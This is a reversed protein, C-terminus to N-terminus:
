IEKKYLSLLHFRQLTKGIAEILPRVAVSASRSAIMPSPKGLSSGALHASPEPFNM